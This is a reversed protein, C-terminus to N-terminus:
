RKRNVAGASLIFDCTGRWTEQGSWLGRWWAIGKACQARLSPFDPACLYFDSMGEKERERKLKARWSRTMVDNWMWFTNKKGWLKQRIRGSIGTTTINPTTQILNKVKIKKLNQVCQHPEILWPLQILVPFISSGWIYHHSLCLPLFPLSSSISCLMSHCIHILKHTRTHTKRTPPPTMSMLTTCRCGMLSSKDKILAFRSLCPTCSAAVLLGHWVRRARM